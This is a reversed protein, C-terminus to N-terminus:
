SCRGNYTLAQVKTHTQVNARNKYVLIKRQERRQWYIIIVSNDVAGTWVERQDKVRYQDSQPICKSTIICINCCLHQTHTLLEGMQIIRGISLVRVSLFRCLVTLLAETDLTTMHWSQPVDKPTKKSQSIQLWLFATAQKKDQFYSLTM